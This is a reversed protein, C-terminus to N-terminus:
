DATAGVVLDASSTLRALIAEDAPESASAKRERVSEDLRGDARLVELLGRMLIDTNPKGNSLLGLRIRSGLRPKPELDRSPAVRPEAVPSLITITDAM